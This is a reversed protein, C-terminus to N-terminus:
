EDLPRPPPRSQARSQAKPACRCRNLRQCPAIQVCAHLHWALLGPAAGRMGLPFIGGQGHGWGSPNAHPKCGLGWFSWFHLDGQGQRMGKGSKKGTRQHQRAAHGALAARHLGQGQAGIGGGGLQGLHLVGEVGEGGGGLHGSRACGRDHGEGAFLGGHQSTQTKGLDCALRALCGIFLAQHGNAGGPHLGQAIQGFLDMADM